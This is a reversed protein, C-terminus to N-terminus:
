QEIYPDMAEQVTDNLRDTLTQVQDTISTAFNEVLRYIKLNNVNSHSIVKQTLQKHCEEIQELKKQLTFLKSKCKKRCQNKRDTKRKTAVYIELKVFKEYKKIDKESGFQPVCTLYLNDGIPKLIKTECSSCLKKLPNCNDRCGILDTRVEDYSNKRPCKIKRINQTYQRVVSTQHVSLNTDQQLIKELCKSTLLNEAIQKHKKFSITQHSPQAILQGSYFKYSKPTVLNKKYQPKEPCISFGKLECETTGPKLSILVSFPDFNDIDSSFFKQRYDTLKIKVSYSLVNKTVKIESNKKRRNIGRLLESM